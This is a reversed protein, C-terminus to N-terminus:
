RATDEYTVPIFLSEKMESSFQVFEYVLNWKLMITDEKEREKFQQRPKARESQISWSKKKQEKRFFVLYLSVRYVPQNWSTNDKAQLNDNNEQFFSFFIGLSIMVKCSPCHPLWLLRPLLVSAVCENTAQGNRDSCYRVLSLFLKQSGARKLWRFRRSWIGQSCTWLTWDNMPRSRWPRSVWTSPQHCFIM